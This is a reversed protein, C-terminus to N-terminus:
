PTREQAEGQTCASAALAHREAIGGAGGWGEGTHLPPRRTALPTHPFATM